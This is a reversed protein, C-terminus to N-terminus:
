RSRSKPLQDEDIHFMIVWFFIIGNEIPTTWPVPWSSGWFFNRRPESFFTEVFTSLFPCKRECYLLSDNLFFPLMKLLLQGLSRDLLIEFFIELPGTSFFPCSISFFFRHRGRQIFALNKYRSVVKQTGSNVVESDWLWYDIVLWYASAPAFQLWIPLSSSIVSRFRLIRLLKRFREILRPLM